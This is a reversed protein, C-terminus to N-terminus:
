YKRIISVVVAAISLEEEPYIDKYKKNGAKLYVKGGEKIFYKITYKRDVEAIVIDGNKAERGREVLAMDGPMIGADTMSEGSIKLIYTAEKKQILFEDLTMTDILEEEAASPFGAEVSGLIPLARLRRGPSLKGTDDREVFGAEVLEDTKIKITSLSKYATAALMERYRPIRGHNHYYTTIYTLLPTKM